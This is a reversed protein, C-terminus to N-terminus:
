TLATQTRAAHGAGAADVDAARPWPTEQGNAIRGQGDRRDGSGSCAAVALALAALVPRHAALGTM